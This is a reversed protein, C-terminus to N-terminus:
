GDAAQPERFGYGPPNVDQRNDLVRNSGKTLVRLYRKVSSESWRKGCHRPIEELLQPLTLRRGVARLTALIHGPCDADAPPGPDSGELTATAAGGPAAAPQTGGPEAPPDSDPHLRIRIERRRHDYIVAAILGPFWGALKCVLRWLKRRREGGM